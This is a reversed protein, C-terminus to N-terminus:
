SRDEARAHRLEEELMDPTYQIASVQYRALLSLFEYRSLGAIEAAKDQSIVGNEYWKVVAAQKMEEVFEIPSKRLASFASEPLSVPYTKVSMRTGKKAKPTPRQCVRAQPQSKEDLAQQCFWQLMNVGLACNNVEELM